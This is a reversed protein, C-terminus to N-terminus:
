KVGFILKLIVAAFVVVWFGVFLCIFTKTATRTQRLCETCMAGYQQLRPADVTHVPCILKNCGEFGAYKAICRHWADISCGAIECPM